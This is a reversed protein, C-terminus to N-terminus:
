LQNLPKKMFEEDRLKRLYELYRKQALLDPNDASPAEQGYQKWPRYPVQGAEVFRWHGIRVVSYGDPLGESHDPYDDLDLDVFHVPVAHELGLRVAEFLAETPEVLYYVAEGRANRHRVGSIQPLRRAAKCLPAQLSRPLEVALAVPKIRQFAEVVLQALELQDHLVPLVHVNGAVLTHAKPHM